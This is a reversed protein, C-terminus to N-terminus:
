KFLDNLKQLEPNLSSKSNEKIFSWGDGILEIDSAEESVFRMPIEMLINEWIIPLIDITNEDNKSNEDIELLLEELNGDIETMFTYEVPKLTVACEGTMVGSLELNLDFGEYVNKKISGKLIVNDIKKLDTKLLLESDIKIKEDIILEKEIGSKLRTLDILM